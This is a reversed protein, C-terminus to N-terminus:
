DIGLSDNVDRSSAKFCHMNATSCSPMKNWMESPSNGTLSLGDLERRSISLDVIAETAPRDANVAVSAAAVGVGAGVGSDLFFCPGLLSGRGAMLSDTFIVFSSVKRTLGRQSNRLTWVLAPTTPSPSGIVSPRASVQAVATLSISGYRIPLSGR